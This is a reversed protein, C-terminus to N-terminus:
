FFFNIKKKLEIIVKLFSNFFKKFYFFIKLLFNKKGHFSAVPKTGTNVNVFSGTGVTVKIDGEQFCCEGFM